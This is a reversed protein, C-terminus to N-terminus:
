CYIVGGKKKVEELANKGKSEFYFFFGSCDVDALLGKCGPVRGAAVVPAPGVPGDGLTDFGALSSVSVSVSTNVTIVIVVILNHVILIVIVVVIGIGVGARRECGGLALALPTIVLTYTADFFGFVFVM